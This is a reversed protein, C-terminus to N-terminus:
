DLLALTLLLVRPKINNLHRFYVLSTIAMVGRSKPDVPSDNEVLAKCVAVHGNKAAIDLATDGVHNKADIKANTCYM